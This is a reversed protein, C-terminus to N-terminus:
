DDCRKLSVNYRSILSITRFNLFNGNVFNKWNYKRSLITKQYIKKLTRRIICKRIKFGFYFKM